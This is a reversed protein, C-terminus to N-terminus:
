KRGNCLIWAEGAEFGRLFMRADEIDAWPNNALLRDINEICFETRRCSCTSGDEQAELAPGFDLPRYAAIGRVQFLLRQFATSFISALLKVKVSLRLNRFVPEPSSPIPRPLESAVSKEVPITQV